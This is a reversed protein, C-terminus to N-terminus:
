ADAVEELTANSGRRASSPPGRRTRRASGAARGLDVRQTPSATSPRARHQAPLRLDVARLQGPDHDVGVDLRELVFPRGQISWALEGSQGAVATLLRREDGAREVALGRRVDGSMAAHDARGHPAPELRRPEGVEDTARRGLEVQAVAVGDEVEEGLGARPVDHQRGGLDAADQGVVGVRHLEQRSLRRMWVLTM